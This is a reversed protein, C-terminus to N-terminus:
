YIDLVTDTRTLVITSSISIIIEPVDRMNQPISNSQNSEESFNFFFTGNQINLYSLNILIKNCSACSM